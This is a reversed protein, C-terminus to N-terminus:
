ALIALCATRGIPMALFIMVIVAIAGLSFRRDKDFDVM